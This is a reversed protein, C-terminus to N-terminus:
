TRRASRKKTGCEMAHHQLWVENEKQQSKAKQAEATYAM